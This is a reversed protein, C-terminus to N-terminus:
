SLKGTKARKSLILNSLALMTKDKLSSMSKHNSGRNCRVKASLSNRGGSIQNVNLRRRRKLTTNRKFIKTALRGIVGAKM